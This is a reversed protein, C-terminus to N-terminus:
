HGANRKLCELDEPKCVENGFGEIFVDLWSLAAQALPAASQQSQSNEGVSSSSSNTSSSASSAAGSLSAGLGSVSPPVGVEAGGASFGGNGVIVHAASVFISGAAVIGADGADVTGEPAVLYVNGPNVNPATQVTRIGSGAVSGSFDLTVNGSADVVVRPPPASIATKSGRGADISGQDSWIQINGGLLTFIRSSNVDVDGSSYIRVDGAGQAVIGLESAPRAGAGVPPNAVGVNLIGGPALLSISGGALTYISSFPLQLDGQYSGAPTTGSPVRSGPFLADIAAYGQVYGATSAALGSALLQGFFTDAVFPQQSVFPLNLFQTQAQEYSLGASGTQQEMFAILSSQLTPSAAVITNTFGAVDPSIGLGAWINIDAGTPDTIFPDDLRGSTTIGVSNGLNINRGAFVDLAGPGGVTISITDQDPEQIIDRGASILTTDTPSINQGILHLNIIDQGATIQAAKPLLFTYADINRGAAIQVPQPDNGHIAGDADFKTPDFTVNPNQVTPYTGAATDLMVVASNAGDLGTLDRGAFLSLQGVPSPALTFNGSPGGAMVVDGSLAAAHLSPAAVMLATFGEDAQAQGLLTALSQPNFTLTGSVSTVNLDSADGYGLFASASKGPLLPQYVVTPSIDAALLVDGRASVTLQSNGQALLSGVAGQGTNLTPDAGLSGGAVIAGTGDALYFQSSDIDAGAHVLLGGSQFLTPTTSTASPLVRSDAAAASLDAIKGGASLTLDGGGLTAINYGLQDFQSLDVGWQALATTGSKTVERSQWDSVSQSIAWGDIDGGALIQVNGGSAPATISFRNVALSQTPAGLLGTTYVTAGAGGFVVDRAAALSINGTGTTIIVGPDITLDAAAGTISALPNASALNAGAVLTISSSATALLDISNRGVHGATQGDTISGSVELSGAAQVTLDVPQSTSGFRWTSLNLPDTIAVAGASQLDVAPEIVLPTSVPANLRASIVGPASALYASTAAQISSLTGADLDTTSTPNASLVTTLLPEVTVQAVGALNAGGLPSIAVDSAGVVPARLTLTGAQQSGTASVTSGADLSIQGQTTGIEVNGGRIGSSDASLIGTPLLEVNQGAFLDISGRLDASPASISGGIQINGSDTVLQVQSATISQGAELVLDGSQVHYNQASTFGGAQAAAALADFATGSLTGADLGFSGGRAGTGGSGSLTAGLTVPGAGAINLSGADATPGGAVDLQAGGAVNLGGGSSLTVTGGPSSTTQGAITISRGSADIVATTGIILNNAASLSVAGSPVIISTQDNIVAASAIVQAGLAPPLDSTGAGTSALTLTGNPAALTLSSAFSGAEALTDSGTIAAAQVNADGGFLLGGIGSGTLAGAVQVTTLGGGDLALTGPGVTMSDAAFLLAGTGGTAQATGDALGQLALAKGGFTAAVGPAINIAAAVVTLSGLSPAGDAVGLTTNALVDIANSATLRLAQSQQLNALLASNITLGDTGTYDGFYINSTALSVSAGAASVSGDLTIAAPGEVAIAGQSRLSAGPALTVTAGPAGDATRVGVPLATDSVALLAANAGEPGTLMVNAALPATVPAASGNLGSNSAITAGSQVDISSGAVLEVDQASLTVGNGVTVNDAVVNISQGDASRQGGLVLRGADWGQVLPGLLQVAGPPVQTDASGVVDIDAASIEIDAAAGGKAPQTLIQGTLTLPVAAGPPLTLFLAGADAPLPPPPLGAQAAAQSFFTSATSVQYTALQQSYSGPYIAFGSYLPDGLGTNGFTLYGAIEPTGNTLSRAVGPAITGQTNPEEQVLFAGPLLAYRAPLLPYIGAALGATGSLYVSTGASLGSGPFDQPDYPAYQGQLQPLVAYLGPNAGNALQDITGGTGPQFEYASLDGGGSLDVTAGGAVTVSPANLSVQRAPIQSITQPTGLLIYSWAASNLTTGFPIVQGGTSVSTISGPALTVSGSADLDIQGFPAYLSGANVIADASVTVGGGASLPIAPASGSTGTGGPPAGITITGLPGSSQLTFQSLTSPYVRAADVTLNGGVSLAGTYGNSTGGLSPLADLRVDGTSDLLAAGVGQLVLSGALDIFDAQVDLAASGSTANGVAPSGSSNTLTVSPAKLTATGSSMVIAPADLTLSESMTLSVGPDLQIFAGPQSSLNYSAQLTLSGAGTAELAAASFLSTGTPGPGSPGPGAAVEITRAATDAPPAGQLSITLAGGAAALNGGAGAAANITGALQINGTSSISVDGGATGVTQLAYAGASNIVDLPASAGHVDILSGSDTTVDGGASSLAVNGGALVSGFLLGNGNGPNYISTGAADLIAKPGLVIDQTTSAIPAQQIAAIISGAPARLTGEIDITDISTLSISGRPDVTIDSGPSILIPGFSSNLAISAAPRSSDPLTAVQAFGLISAASATTAYQSGLVLNAQQALIATDSDLVLGYGGNLGTVLADSATLNVRSFGYQSFLGATLQVVGPANINDVVQPGTWGSGQSLAIQNATLSFSGGQALQGGFADLSVARGIQLADAIGGASLEISGGAGGTLTGSASLWAGGSAELASGDGLSLKGSTGGLGLTIKGGAQATQGMPQAGDLVTLADNTWLGRVDLAVQQAIDIGEPASAGAPDGVSDATTFDLVGSPASINSDIQIRPASLTLSGGPPLSLPLGPPLTISENSYIATRTFGGQTLYSTPLELTLQGPIPAGDAVVIEPAQASFQVAPALYDPEQDLTNTTLPTALGIQLQGGPNLTAATRQLPGNYATGQLTGNLIINPAAVEVSGAPAGQIYGPESKGTGGISQTSTVGWGPFTQTVTPNILGVYTLDSPAQGIGYTQGNAAILQTTAVVGGSYDIQGGSVNLTAGQAVVVDGESQLQVTGGASTRYAVDDPVAAIASSVDAVATGPMGDSTVRSDVYVTQGHLFGDRNQPDNELQAANLQVAVVNSSVPLEATSGSVDIIAGSDIRLQSAPNPDVIGVSPNAVATATVTGGPASISAGSHMVIQQGSLTVTSPMQVQEAVATATSSLEPEIDISSQPGLELSGGQLAGLTTGAASQSVTAQSAAILSVSGNASVATTASIRGDQNVAMGVLTVNGRPASLSGTLQNWATGGPDVEILIGRLAPDSSAQLYVNSGAALVIQGDPASLSGGNQVSQSALLIRGGDAANIVAGNDVLIQVPVPQGNSGLVVNGQSDQVYPRGGSLAPTPPSNTLLGPALVGQSFVSDTINLSSALLGGVNITSNPGFVFGNPNVLYIQGNASISGFISSPSGEYIRNLAVATSSPQVFQVKGDASVDFSAWNLVASSSLTNITLTKGSQQANATGSTVFGAAHSGCSSGLCPVPLTTSWAPAATFLALIIRQGPVRIRRRPSRAARRV